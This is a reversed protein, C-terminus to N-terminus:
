TKSLRKAIWDRIRACAEELEVREGWFIPAISEHARRIEAPRAGSDLHFAEGGRAPAAGV